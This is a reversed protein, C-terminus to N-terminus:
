ASHRSLQPLLHYIIIPYIPTSTSIYMPAEQLSIHSMDDKWEKVASRQEIRQFMEWQFPM